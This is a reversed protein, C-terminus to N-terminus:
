DSVSAVRLTIDQREVQPVNRYRASAPRVFLPLIGPSKALWLYEGLLQVEVLLYPTANSFAAGIPCATRENSRWRHLSQTLKCSTSESPRGIGYRLRPQSVLPPERRCLWRPVGAENRNRYNVAGSGVKQNVPLRVRSVGFDAYRKAGLLLPAIPQPRKGNRCKLQVVVL